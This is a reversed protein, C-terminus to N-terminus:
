GAMMARVEHAKLAPRAAPFANRGEDTALEPFLAILEALQDAEMAGLTASGPQFSESWAGDARVIEHDDFMLHVYTVREVAARDIGPQGTLHVAAALVEAEGAILDARAGTLLM